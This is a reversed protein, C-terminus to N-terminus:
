HIRFIVLYIQSIEEDPLLEFVESLLESLEEDPLLEFDEPFKRIRLPIFSL